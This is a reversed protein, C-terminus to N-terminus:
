IILTTTRLGYTGSGLIKKLIGTDTATAAATLGWQMLVIKTLLTLVNKMFPLCLKILPGRSQLIKSVKINM